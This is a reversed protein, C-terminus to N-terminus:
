LKTCFVDGSEYEDVNSYMADRQDRQDSRQQQYWSGRSRTGTGRNGRGGRHTSGLSERANNFQRDQYQHWAGRTGGRATPQNPGRNCQYQLHGEKGCKYCSKKDKKKEILFANTSAGRSKENQKKEKDRLDHMKMKDKVFDATRDEKAMVDIFDGIYSLSSPLTRLLNNLKEKETVQAGANKLEIILKEFNSFFESVESYDKLKIKELKNRVFIQLATSVKLYLKDLKKIIKYATEEDNIFEIQKNSLASYIYNVAKLDKQNWNEANENQQRVRKCTEECKKLKLINFDEKEM